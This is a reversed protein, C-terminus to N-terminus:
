QIVEDATALLTEPITLCLAKAMKENIVLELKTVQQVPLDTPKEGNLIRATYAAVQRFMNTMDSGYSMLGGALAFDRYPCIAPIAHRVALAGLQERGSAFLTDPGIVLADARLENLTAFVTDFDARTSAHLVHLRMGLKRAAAQMAGTTREAQLQNAPNVLLAIVTATPIADHMLELQKPAVEVNLSTVGTLNGGPRSLSAAVGIEVPDGAFLFVIPITATAAKAALTSPFGSLAIVNVQRRVLDAALAPLRDYQGDAWRYEIVVNQGEIYGSERLGQRFPIVRFDETERSESGLWGVVPVAPRQAHAVVPWAAASGVVAIFERRRM